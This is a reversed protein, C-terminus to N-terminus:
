PTNLSLDCLFVFVLSPFVLALIHIIHYTHIVSVSLSIIIFLSFVFLFLVGEPEHYISGGNTIKKAHLECFYCVLSFIHALGVCQNGCKIVM